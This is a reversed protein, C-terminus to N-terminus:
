KDPYEHANGKYDTVIIKGNKKKEYYFPGLPIKGYGKPIDLVYTPWCIGSVRGRIKKLLSQGEDISTRFHATGPVLDCHHLYYPKVRNEILKKFLNELILSNNNITKLLASQSLLVIGKDSLQNLKQSVETTIEDPHNCHIVLYLPKYSSLLIIMEDDILDPKVMVARSHIRIIKIHEIASIKEFIYKLKVKNTLLPEGGTLIIEWLEKHNKFYNLAADIELMSLESEKKPIKWKRFCFRCQVLCDTRPIFLARDPYRHIVGKSKTYKDDGIPDSEEEPLIEYERNDLSYQKKIAENSSILNEIFPTTKVYLRKM